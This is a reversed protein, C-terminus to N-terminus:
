RAPTYTEATISVSLYSFDTDFVVPSFEVMTTRISQSNYTLVTNRAFHDALLDAYNFLDAKGNDTRVGVDVQYIVQNYDQGANGLEVQISEAPLLFQRLHTGNPRKEIKNEWIVEVTNTTAFDNLHSDLAASMDQYITAM